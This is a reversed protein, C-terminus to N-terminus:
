QGGFAHQWKLAYVSAGSNSNIQPTYLFGMGWPRIAVNLGAVFVTKKTAQSYSQPASWNGTGSWTEKPDKFPVDVFVFPVWRLWAGTNFQISTGASAGLANTKRDDTLSSAVNGLGGGTVGSIATNQELSTYSIGIMNPWRFGDPDSFHDYVLNFTGVAGTATEAGNRVINNSGSASTEAVLNSPGTMRFATALANVGWHPTFAYTLGLAAGGGSLKQYQTIGTGNNEAENQSYAAYAPVATVTFQSEKLPYLPFANPLIAAATNYPAFKGGNVSFSARAPLATSSAILVALIRANLNKTM